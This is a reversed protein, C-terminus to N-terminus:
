ALVMQMLMDLKMICFLLLIHTHKMDRKKVDSIFNLFFNSSTHVM